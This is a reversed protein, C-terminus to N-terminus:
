FGHLTNRFFINLPEADGESREFTNSVTEYHKLNTEIFEHLLSIKPITSKENSALKKTLLANIETNWQEDDTLLTRLKDFEM